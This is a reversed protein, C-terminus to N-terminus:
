TSCLFSTHGLNVGLLKSGIDKKSPGARGMFAGSLIVVHRGFSLDVESFAEYGGDLCWCFSLLPVVIVLDVTETDTGASTARYHVGKTPPILVCTASARQDPAGDAGM